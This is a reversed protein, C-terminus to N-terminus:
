GVAGTAFSTPPLPGIVEFRLTAQRERAIAELKRDFADRRKQDVLFSAKFALPDEPEDVVVDVFESDLAGLIEVGDQQRREAMAAAVREGLELREYYGAAGLRQTRERLQAIEPDSVVIETLLADQVYEAKVNFQMCGRLRELASLYEERNVLLVDQELVDVSDAASGFRFPLVTTKSFAEELVALHRHLDRRSMRIDTAPVLSILAAVDGQRIVDVDAGGIGEAEIADISGARVVGYVYAAQTAAPAEEAVTV